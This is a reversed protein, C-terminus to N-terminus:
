SKREDSGCGIMWDELDYEFIVDDPDECRVGVRRRRKRFVRSRPVSKRM